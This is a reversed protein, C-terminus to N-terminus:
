LRNATKADPSPFFTYSLTIEPLAETDRDKAFGPQIYYVVPFEVTKGAPITQDSFCFCQTKVLYSGAAEPSVSYSARGTIPHDGNNTVKFMAMSAAGVRTTQTTQESQFTWPLTRVNTDFRVTLLHDTPPATPPAEGRKPTGNFGTLQCFRRYLPVSAYALGVMASVGLVCAVFVARRRRMAANQATDSADAM